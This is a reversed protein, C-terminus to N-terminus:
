TAFREKIPNPQRKEYRLIQGAYLINSKTSGFGTSTKQGKLAVVAGSGVKVSWKKRFEIHSAPSKSVMMVCTM